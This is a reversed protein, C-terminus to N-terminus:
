CGSGAKVKLPAALDWSSPLGMLWRSFAPNLQGPKETPAPSGTSHVGSIMQVQLSLHTVAAGMQIGRARCREKRAVHQEPTGGPEEAAPTAWSAMNAVDALGVQPDRATKKPFVIRKKANMFHSDPTPWSTCGSGSTRLGSARRQLIPRGAPTVSEKWTLSFLTSGTSALRDRLRSALSRQLAVSASLILGRRGCTDSTPSDKGSGPQASHSARVRDQGFLDGTVGDPLVYRTAGSESELSPTSNLPTKLTQRNSSKSAETM